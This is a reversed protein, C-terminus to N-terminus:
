NTSEPINGCCVCVDHWPEWCRDARDRTQIVAEDGRDAPTTRAPCPDDAAKSPGSRTGVSDGLHVEVFCIRGGDRWRTGYRRRPSIRVFFITKRECKTSRAILIRAAIPRTPSKSGTRFPFRVCDVIAAIGRAFFNPFNVAHQVFRASRTSLTALMGADPDAATSGLISFYRSLFKRYKRPRPTRDREFGNRPSLPSRASLARPRDHM